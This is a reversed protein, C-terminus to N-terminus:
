LEFNVPVTLDLSAREIEKPFPPFLARELIIEKVAEKLLPHEGVLDVIEKVKGDQSLVFNVEVLGTQKLRKALPPYFKNKNLVEKVKSAYLALPSNEGRDVTDQSRQTELVEENLKEEKIKNLSPESKAINKQKRKIEEQAKIKINLSHEKSYHLVSGLNQLVSGKHTIFLAIAHIAFIIFLFKSYNIKLAM